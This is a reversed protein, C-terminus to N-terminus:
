KNCVEEMEKFHTSDVVNIIKMIIKTIVQAETLMNDINDDQNHSYFNIFKYTKEIDSKSIEGNLQSECYDLLDRFNNRKMPYKFSLFSELLKRSLNACLYSDDITLNNKKNFGIVKSFLYHYESDYDVLSSHANILISSRTTDGKTEISYTKSMPKNKKNKKMLWDRVLKFYSFNHTLVFLQLASELNVKMFSYSQFLNNADFSSVPDDVVIITKRIDNNKEKTKMVFYVFAIATKEGESLNEAHTRTNNRSIRYGKKNSDFVLSLESRGLFNCLQKNFEDAAITENSLSKELLEAEINMASLDSNLNIIEVDVSKILEEKELLKFSILEQAAYHVELKTKSKTTTETFNNSKSNHSSILSILENICDNLEDIKSQDIKEITLKDNFQNNVKLEITDNWKEIHSNIDDIKSIILDRINIFQAQYESFLSDSSPFASKTILVVKSSLLSLESQFKKFEDSFHSNLEKIRNKSIEGDCFICRESGEKNYFGLGEFVWRQLIPNKELEEISSSLITKSLVRQIESYSEYFSSGDFVGIFQSIVDKNIPSVSLTLNIVDNDNLILSSDSAVDKNSEILSKLKVRNYNLYKSDNTEIVKLSDKVRKATKTLFNDIDVRTKRKIENKSTLILEKNKIDLSLKNLKKREEIKKEDILLISKISDDWNINEKIFESNFTMINLNNSEINGQNIVGNYNDIVFDIEFKPEKYTLSSISKSEICKFLKSLTSKGSGNWGYIVNFKLFDDCGSNEHNEYIGFSKLKKIRTIGQVM